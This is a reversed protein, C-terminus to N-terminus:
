NIHTHLDKTETFEGGGVRVRVIGDKPEGDSVRLLHKKQTKPSVVASEFCCWATRLSVVM